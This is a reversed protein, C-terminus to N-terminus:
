TAATGMMDGQRAFLELGEETKELLDSALSVRGPEFFCMVTSGGFAFYGKEAGRASFVGPVYTEEILGVGTAGVELMAVEGWLESRILTLNRKNTWLWALRGRLCYPSVSALPGGLKTWPGPVGSVPFHFRHYDTPCLRSLVVAGAAYREALTDSGLLSPLDFRQGKVFVNKIRDAREWGMHRADAPFVATDEGGALPRAGPKLRRYFFDNFHRFEGVGKLSDEMNIGYEEVFSPISRASSPRNKLWGLLRSFVGRKILVHLAAKGSATGYIWQMYKEGPVQEREERGTYRNYYRIGEMSRRSHRGDRRKDLRFFIGAERKWCAAHPSREEAGDGETCIVRGWPLICSIRMLLFAAPFWLILLNSIDLVAMRLSTVWAIFM